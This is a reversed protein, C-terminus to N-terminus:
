KLGIFYDGLAKELLKGNPNFRVRVPTDGVLFCYPNKVQELYSIMKEDESLSPDIKIDEVNVLTNRDIKTIDMEQMEALQESTIM